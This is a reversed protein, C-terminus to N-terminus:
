RWTSMYVESPKPPGPGCSDHQVRRDQPEGWSSISAVSADEFDPDEELNAEVEELAALKEVSVGATAAREGRELARVRLRKLLMTRERELAQLEDEQAMVQSKLQELIQALLVGTDDGATGTSSPSARNPRDARPM